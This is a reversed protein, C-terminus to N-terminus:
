CASIATRVPMCSPVTFVFIREARVTKRSFSGRAAQISLAGLILGSVEGSIEVEAEGRREVESPFLKRLSWKPRILLYLQSFSKGIGAATLRLM